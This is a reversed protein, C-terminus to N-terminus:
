LNLLYGVGAAMPAGQAGKQIDCGPTPKPEPPEQEAKTAVPAMTLVQDAPQILAHDGRPKNSSETTPYQEVPSHIPNTM